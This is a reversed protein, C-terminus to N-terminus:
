GGKSVATAFVEAIPSPAAIPLPPSKAILDVMDKAMAEIAMKAFSLVSDADQEDLDLRGHIIPNRDLDKIQTLYALTRASPAVALKELAGILDGWQKKKEEDLIGHAKCFPRLVAEIARCAHFGAADYLGFAYCKGAARYETCARDGITQRVAESFIQDASEVLMSTEYIRKKPVLYAAAAKIETKWVTEFERATYEIMNLRWKPIDGKIESWVKERGDEHCYYQRWLLDIRNLLEGASDRSFAIPFPAGQGLWRTLAGRAQLLIWYVDGAAEGAPLGLLPKIFGSFEYIENLDHRQM